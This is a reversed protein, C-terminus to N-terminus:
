FELERNIAKLQKHYLNISFSMTKFFRNKPITSKFYDSYEKNYLVPFYFNITEDFLPIHIGLDYLFRDGQADQEWAEAYTGIDLFIRLPIRIPLVSLPNIKDPVTANLNIATLWDDTKGIKNALLDTRVKFGGDRIMIQQSTFGEFENRGFFYDSYTYDEYGKPGTMNLLFRDNDFEKRLTKGGLYFFKGAFVRAQLGGGKYNFYYHGTISPRIFDTSQDIQLLVNFPYLARSNGYSWQFQNLYRNEKPFLYRLFTTTDSGSIITDRRVRLSEETFLFTKWQISHTITSKPDKNRFTLRVGPALKWFFSMVQKKGDPIKFDDMGFTSGNVFFDTKRILGNSIATFNLRALGSLRKSGSGYMPVFLYHFKNPPLKYNTLIAGVMIRDYKNAGIAPSILLIDKAPQRLYSGFSRPSVPSIVKFGKLENGPLIGTSDLLPIYSAVDNGLEEKLVAFFDEPYPHKFAWKQFYAQMAKRVSDEGYKRELLMMWESTKHYVSLGYNLSSFDESHLNAPQDTKRKVKTQFLLESEQTYNSSYFKLMYKKEVYSNLGEDLWPHNRENSALAGQFWNHGIEHTVVEDLYKDGAIEPSIITITPYEMGGGTSLPGKVVSMTSYPYEGIQESYFELAQKAYGPVFSWDKTHDSYTFVKVEKGSPLQVTEQIVTFNKDAFWAFDHVNKQQFHYTALDSASDVSIQEGTAAIIYSKPVTIHVDYDGFECYFEGQDLYPMPHWGKRDYVAPKPFWQTIQFTEGDYGGRSFNFPLKVHFPTTIITTTQPPLPEPLILKVIDIHQPHDELRAPTGDVKFDLRNIYGREEKDSFYFDTEGNLLMQDSFATRDHKYANPWLHFWIFHLTDPSNNTYSIKAFADLTKQQDNLTVDM